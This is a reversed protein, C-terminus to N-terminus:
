LRKLIEKVYKKTFTEPLPAIYRGDKTYKNNKWNAKIDEMINGYKGKAVQWFMYYSINQEFSKSKDDEFIISTFFLIAEEINGKSYALLQRGEKTEIFIYPNSIMKYRDSKILNMWNDYLSQIKTIGEKLKAKRSGVLMTETSSLEISENVTLGRAVSEDFSIGGPGNNSSNRAYLPTAETYYQVISGYGYTSTSALADRPHFTRALQGPKSEWDYGYANGNGPKRISGHTITGNSQAWMAILGNNADAGVSTYTKAGVYREPNNGYYDDWTSWIFGSGYYYSPTSGWFWFSTFGGTWATCNYVTSAPSSMIADDGKLNPFGLTNDPNLYTHINSNKCGSYIDTTGTPNYSSFATVVVGQISRNFNKKIRSNLSWSFDGGNYGYDDNYGCVRGPSGSNDVVWMRPDGTTHATFYNLEQNNNHYHSLNALGAIPCDYYYSPTSGSGAYVVLSAMGTEALWYSRLKVYYYGTTPVTFAIYGRQSGSVVYSQASWSQSQPNDASFVEMIHLLSGAWSTFSMNKGATLYVTTYYSYAFNRDLGYAYDNLDPDPSVTSM